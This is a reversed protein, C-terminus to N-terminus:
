KTQGALKYLAKLQPQVDYGYPIRNKYEDILDPWMRFRELITFFSQTTWGNKELEELINPEVRTGGGAVSYLYAGEKFYELKIRKEWFENFVKRDRENWYYTKYIPNVRIAERYNILIHTIRNDDLIKKFDDGDEAQKLLEMLPQLNTEVSYSVYDRKLYFAKNEASFLIRSNAPLNENIWKIVSYSPNPCGTQSVALFSNKDSNKCLYQSVKLGWAVNLSFFINSLICFYFFAMFFPNKAIKEAYYAFFIALLAFSPILYRFLPTGLYWFCYSLLFTLILYSLKREMNRFLLIFPTLSLLLPGIMNQSEGSYITMVWPSKLFDM